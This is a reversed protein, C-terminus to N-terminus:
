FTELPDVDIELTCNKTKYATLFKLRRHKFDKPLKLLVFVRYKKRVKYYFSPNPGFLKINKFRGIIAALKKAEKWVAMESDGKLRVLILRTFPPFDLEKRLEMEQAYFAPYDQLQSFLISYQEPHYTQMLVVGPKEGRGSRGAVQTLTQFTRESSRFDPLNLVVDANVIGVLTVDPFDFGKTVLQTGLLIRAKGQEFDHFIKEAQGRKRVSDRDLRVIANEQVAPPLQKKVIEEIRQTGAGRYLLTGRTCEPCRSIIRQTHSCIHCSLHAEKDKDSKHYVLPLHCYPCKAVYGCSPCFLHPAFGRRNLFLIIQENNSLAQEIKEELGSSIYKKNEKRLDIIDIEPLNRKDIREKLTLLKYKGLGANHYSEIQPTASGLVVTMNEFKGRMVAVDRANYRPTREHEKYSHDHEEDVVIMKLEPIPVFVSSRPGIVIRYEGNKIAFWARRREADTLSSHITVVDDGFRETFRSHLLPTMSIEPVLVLVRGGERIVKESCKLYVETKGSGTIGYLLFTEFTKKELAENIRKIAQSQPYTPQPARAEILEVYRTVPEYKKMVKSPLALRLVDGLTSLYYDAVWAYLQVLTPPIFHPEVVEKIDRIGQVLRASNTKVVLGYKLQKRLPVLVLDGVTLRESSEYTFYDFRTKPIAVDVRM